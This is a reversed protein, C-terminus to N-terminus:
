AIKRKKLFDTTKSNNQNKPDEPRRGKLISRILQISEKGKRSRSKERM